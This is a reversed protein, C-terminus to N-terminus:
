VPGCSCGTVATEGGLFEGTNAGEADPGSLVKTANEESRQSHGHIPVVCGFDGQRRTPVAEREGFNM